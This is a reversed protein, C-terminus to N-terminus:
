LLDIIIKQYTQKLQLYTIQNQNVLQATSYLSNLETQIQQFQKNAVRALM